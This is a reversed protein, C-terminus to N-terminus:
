SRLVGAVISLQQLLSKSSVTHAASCNMECASCSLSSASGPSMLRLSPCCEFMRMGNLIDLLGM